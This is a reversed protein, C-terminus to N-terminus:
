LLKAASFHSRSANVNLAGGTDQFGRAHFYDNAAAAYIGCASVPVTLTDDLPQASTNLGVVSSGNHYIAVYRYTGNTSHAAFQLTVECLYKGASPATLRDTNTSNDHMAGVDYDEQNWTMTTESGSNISQDASKTVRAKPQDAIGSGDNFAADNTWLKNWKATTPQEDAVFSDASYAM